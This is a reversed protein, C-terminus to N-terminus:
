GEPNELATEQEETPQTVPAPRVIIYAGRGDVVRGDEYTSSVQLLFPGSETLNWTAQIIPDPNSSSYITTVSGSRTNTATVTLSTANDGRRELVVNHTGDVLNIMQGNRPSTMLYSSTNASAESINIGAGAEGRNGVDDFVRVLLGHEGDTAWEPISVTFTRSYPRSEIVIDDLLVDVRALARNADVDLEITFTRGVSENNRPRDFRVRPQNEPTHVDDYETPIECQELAVEGEELTENQKTIYSAIASEWASYLSNRDPNAPVAGRPNSPDVYHLISHYEGCIKEERYEEPTYETVLKGSITDITIQQSPMVGDLVPKGTLPISAGPFAEVPTGQLAGRMFANWVPAAVTSGGANKMRTGDTNGTWVGAVLSPTYGVTWADKYDNTTGTKAAVPRGGLTLLGGSGFAYARSADDSLVNSLMASVNRDVVREGEEEKWEFLTSGTGDEVKLIMTTEQKVGENAFVAYAGVHEILKVEAGGLVMALGYQDRNTFTYGLSEAFDLGNQVGILALMKVAPINLSGQLAKRITVPGLEQGSYNRPRYNGASSPFNTEVDWLITNPTYGAEFGAAYVIPKISSGPQLPMRTVNVQGDIDENFYDASGVLALVEGTKPNMAVLGSNNFGYRESRAEINDTIAKEAIGQMDYDLTTIVKLGGQEVLRQGYEEELLEKVWLVFHPATISGVRRQLTVEQAKAEEAQEATIYGLDRMNDLIWDRRIMLKDPNNIYYTPLQPLGALTASESLTLESATKGLYNQSAAEIGYYTSGYPIENFYIQLIEDKSYRQELGVSLILEKVKRVLTRENTLVANKILQQTLTSGGGRTGAFLVARALGKVSFGKHTCFNRDEAAITAQLAILPIGNESTELKEDDNCFGEQLRLLTRNEDGYIEYLVHEGTRDYIKTAQPVERISLAGPDPLNRSFWAVMILLLVVGFLGGAIALLALNKIWERKNKGKTFSSLATLIRKTVGKKLYKNLSSHTHINRSM